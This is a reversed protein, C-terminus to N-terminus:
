DGKAVGVVKYRRVDVDVSQSDADLYLPAYVAISPTIPISVAIKMRVMEGNEISKPEAVGLVTGSASQVILATSAGDKVHRALIVGEFEVVTGSLLATEGPPTLSQIAITPIDKSSKTCALLLACMAVSTSLKLLKYM